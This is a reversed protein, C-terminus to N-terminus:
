LPCVTFRNAKRRRQNSDLRRWWGSMRRKRPHRGTRPTSRLCLRDSAIPPVPRIVKQIAFRHECPHPYCTAQPPDTRPQNHRQGAPVRLLFCLSLAPPLATLAFAPPLAPLASPRLTRRLRLDFNSPSAPPHLEITSCFGELSIVLTRNGEGAGRKSPIAASPVDSPM